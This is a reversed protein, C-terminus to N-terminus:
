QHPDPGARSRELAACANDLESTWAGGFSTRFAHYAAEVVAREQVSLVPAVTAKAKLEDILDFISRGALEEYSHGGLQDWIRRITGAYDQDPAEQAGSM